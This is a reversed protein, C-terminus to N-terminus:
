RGIIDGAQADQRLRIRPKDGGAPWRRAERLQRGWPYAERPRITDMGARDMVRASELMEDLPEMTLQMVGIRFPVTV